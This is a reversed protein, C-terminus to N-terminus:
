RRVGRTRSRTRGREKEELLATAANEDQAARRPFVTPLYKELGFNIEDYKLSGSIDEDSIRLGRDRRISNRRGRVVHYPSRARSTGPPSKAKTRNARADRVYMGPHKLEVHAFSIVPAAATTRMISSPGSGFCRQKKSSSPAAKHIRESDVRTHSPSLSGVNGRMSLSCSSTISSAVSEQFAATLQVPKKDDATLDDFHSIATGISSCSDPPSPCQEGYASQAKSSPLKAGITNRLEQHSRDHLQSIRLPMKPISYMFPDPRYPQEVTPLNAGNESPCPLLAKVKRPCLNGSPKHQLLPFRSLTTDKPSVPSMDFLLDSSSPQRDPSRPPPDTTKRRMPIPIPVSPIHLEQLFPTHRAPPPASTAQM